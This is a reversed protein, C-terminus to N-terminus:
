KTIKLEEAISFMFSKAQEFDNEINGDLIAEKIRNKIEGVERCPKLDFTKMIFDGDIPPQFNRVRDKEELLEAKREVKEFNGIYRKKRKPNKTTIDAKCLKMLDEFDNGADFLLRRVASDSAEEAVLAIPRSSLRVMKQVYSLPEGLPLKLRRFLPKVMKAGIFEHMHFTWGQKADFSKTRAKGIDHLLAAWRLWLQDTKQSINDLVELTHYFNDKHLHGEREDIGHLNHLEPLIGELIGSEDLLRFGKSPKESKMIKHLEESIREASLVPIRHLNEKIAEFSEKEVDFDLQCAFRIARFMRLPDDSYTQSPALPTRLIKQELDEIGDFPDLLEGYNEPVLSIAMANITFDRRNQDDELSGREVHPKRSNKSYSEKRCGVFELQKGQYMLMATGFRKFVSVKPKGQLREALAKALEIGDGETVFDIDQKNERSLLHDRVFGGIVYVSTGLEQSLDSVKDFLPSSVAQSLNMKNLLNLCVEYEECPRLIKRQFENIEVSFM